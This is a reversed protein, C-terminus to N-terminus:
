RRTVGRIRLRPTRGQRFVNRRRAKDVDFPSVELVRQIEWGPEDHFRKGCNAGYSASWSTRAKSSSATPEGSVLFLVPNDDLVFVLSKVIQSV